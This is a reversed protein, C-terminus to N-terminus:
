AAVEALEAKSPAVLFGEDGHFVRPMTPEQGFRGTTYAAFHTQKIRKGLVTADPWGDQWRQASTGQARRHLSLDLMDRYYEADLRLDAAGARVLGVRDERARIMSRVGWKLKRRVSLTKQIPRTRTLANGIEDAFGQDRSLDRWLEAEAGALPEARGLRVGLYFSPLVGRDRAREWRLLEHDIAEASRDLVRLLREGLDTGWVLADHMGHGIVPDKFHGADGVLAWGSGASRRFYSLLDDATRQKCQPRTGILRERLEPLVALHRAWMGDPDRRFQKIEANPPMLLTLAGGYTPFHFGITDGVREFLWESRQEPSRDDDVYYWAMGRMDQWERYPQAAGVWNAVSSRRGDAGIVVKARIERREGDADRGRIGALRGGAWVPEEATFGERLDAGAARVGGAMIHDFAPRRINLTFEIGEPVRYHPHVEFGDVFLRFHRLPPAGTALMEDLVGHQHLLWVAKPTLHHTSLTDAPFMARDVAVVSAGSRALTMATSAGAPRCGVIVVDVNETKM